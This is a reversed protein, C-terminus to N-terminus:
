RTWIDIRSNERNAIYIRGSRVAIGEPYRLQGRGFGLRGFEFAFTVQDGAVDFALARHNTIDTVYLLGDQYALGGPLGVGADGEFPLSFLYAGDASFAKVGTIDGVWIRGRGDVAVHGPFMLDAAGDGKQGFSRVVTGDPRLVHIQHRQFDPLDKAEAVYILGAADVTIGVPAWDEVTSPKLTDRFTGDPEFILVQRLIRDVVYVTGDPAVALDMPQRSTSTTHPPTATTLLAGDPGFVRIARDGGGEAVYIRRGDPSVAVAVPRTAPALTRDFSAPKQRTVGLAEPLETGVRPVRGQRMLYVFVGLSLLFLSLLLIAVPWRRSFGGAPSGPSGEAITM